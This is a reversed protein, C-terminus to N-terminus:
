LDEAATVRLSFVEPQYPPLNLAIRYEGAQGFAFTVKEGDSVLSGSYTGSVSIEVGAPLGSLVLERGDPGQIDECTYNLRPRVRFEGDVLHWYGPEIPPIDLVSQGAARPAEMQEPPCPYPASTNTGVMVGNADCFVLM